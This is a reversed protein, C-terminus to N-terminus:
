YRQKKIPIKDSPLHLLYEDETINKRRIIREDNEGTEIKTIKTYKTEYNRTSKRYIIEETQTSEVYQEIEITVPNKAALKDLNVSNVLYKEQHQVPHPTKLMQYIERITNAIKTSFDTDNGIIKLNDHGLWSELTRKDKEIAEEKSETRAGNNATTYFEEKGNAATVLHMVLDYRNLLEFQTMGLERILEQFEEESVYAKDDLLGRDCLIITKTDLMKAATQAHNELQLQLKMVYKQFDYM